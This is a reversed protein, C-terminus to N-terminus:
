DTAIASMSATEFQGPDDIWWRRATRRFSDSDRDSGNTRRRQIWLAVRYAAPGLVSVIPLTATLVAPDHRLASLGYKVGSLRDGNEIAAHARVRRWEDHFAKEIRPHRSIEDAYKRRVREYSEARSVQGTSVNGDHLRRNVLPTDIGAYKWDRALRINMEWDVGHPFDTDFGNVSEFAARRLMHGSHPALPFDRFIEPYIDGLVSPRFERVIRGDITSVGGTYVIGYEPPLSRMRAVQREVKSRHWRDDDGLICYYEGTAADAARNFSYAIGQNRDNHLVRVGERDRFEDLVAETGDTSGDDVVVAEVDDYTQGLVTEIAGGIHEDRNYTPILASVTSM